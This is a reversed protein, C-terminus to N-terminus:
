LSPTSDEPPVRETRDDRSNAGLDGATPRGNEYASAARENLQELFGSAVIGAPLAFLGVGLIAVLMGLVRGLCTVPTVAFECTMMLTSWWIADPLTEFVEPQADRKAFYMM